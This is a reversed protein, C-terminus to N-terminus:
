KHDLSGNKARALRLAKKKPPATSARKILTPVVTYTRTNRSDSRIQELLCQVGLKGIRTFDQRITTLPPLFFGAEPIDDFGVISIDHPVSIGEEQFARIAGLAMQDNAVVLATFQGWHKRTLDRAAQYGGQASWDAEVCPGPTLRPAKLALLWGQHRLRAARWALSARLCGIQRHGLDILHQTALRSGSKQQFLVASTKFGLDSDMAVLPVNQCVDRLMSLDIELPLHILIGAVRHAYLENVARRIEGVNEEAIGAFMVSYGAEKAAEEVNVMTQSPGYLGTAFSVHGLVTSRRSVLHRATMNPRYGLQEIVRLVRTRTAEAVEPMENIVRSVTQYSVGCRAAVDTMTVERKPVTRPMM